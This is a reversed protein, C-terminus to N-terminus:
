PQVKALGSYSRGFKEYRDRAERAISKFEPDTKVAVMLPDTEFYPYPFFGHDVSQRFLRLASKSDRLVAYAEAVKYIGEADSVGREQIKKETDALLKLGQQDQHRISLAIAEGTQAQLLNADLGYADDFDKLADALNHQHFKAFGRYFLIYASQRSPLSKLFDAYRGLYLYTNLASSNIKVQPDLKRALLCEALSENLLGGFRLAYGLEWHAEANNKNSRLAAQLLPVAQEPQGTDTLLNATYIQPDILASNLELAHRYAGLAKDYQEKGGFHLSANTEYAEGLHAWALAYRPDRDTAEELAAISGTYDNLAYLDVGHLYEEYAKQNMPNDFGVNSQESPSLNLKLESIVQEAVRDQVTLLKDYTVDITDRWLISDHAVDVLQLYLRLDNDEKVYSGLLLTNVHLDAAAQRPNVEQLNRYRDVSSSPRVTLASIYSMKTIVADALSYGLFDTAPDPHSNRFPLIALSRPPQPAPSRLVRWAIVGLLVVAAIASLMVLLRVNSSKEVPHAFRPASQLRNQFDLDARFTKLAALLESADAYRGNRDKCMARNVIAVLEPPIRPLFTTLQPPDNKLIAVILDSDTEGEFASHGCLMEYLVAGLSFIDTRADLKQGRAQEPSMYKTTGIVMGFATKADVSSGESPAGSYDTRKRMFRAIGFDVIKVLGDSRIIINEPKVDRHILGARHAVSLGSAIQIAIDVSELIGLPGSKLRQRITQGEIFESAIFRTDQWEGVEYITLINPHNLASAAEAEKQFRRVSDPDFTSVSTLVKIAIRRKLVPDEAVYVQGMGGSGAESLIIYRAFVSGPPLRSSAPQNVVLSAASQVTQKLFEDDESAAALLSILEDEMRADGHCQERVFKGRDCPALDMARQFLEELENWDPESSAPASM